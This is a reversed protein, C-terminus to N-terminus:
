QEHHSEPDIRNENPQSAPAAASLPRGTSAELAILARRYSVVAELHERRANMARQQATIWDIVNLEGARYAREFLEQYRRLVPLVEAEQADVESKAVRLAARAAFADARLRHLLEVYESRLRERAAKREAIEGGNQNLLPLEISLGL